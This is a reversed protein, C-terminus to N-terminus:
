SSLESDLLKNINRWSLLTGYKTELSKEGGYIVYFHETKNSLNKWYEFNTFYSTNQTEGSKIEIAITKSGNDIICDIEKGKHDCWFYMDFSLNNNFKHKYLEALIFNEFIAGTSYHNYLEANNKIGLLYSLLGTDNFYLKPSKVLRKDFSKHYPQLLFIIYSAELVSLWSKVTNVSIGADNALSSMNVLQGARGACLKLFRHFTNLNEINTIIRVDKELYTEVYNSYFISPPTKKDYIAPYFGKYLLETHHIDKLKSISQIEAISFPLLKLIGVRGALSQSIKESLLFNQSGSIYYKLKKDNDVFGQIYSFLEPGRQIEDIILGNPYNNLFKRPDDTAITRTDPDELSVYPLNSFMSRLLTTKGSQRPGTLSIVQFYKSLEKINPEIERKVM